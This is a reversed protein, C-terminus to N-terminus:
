DGGESTTDSDRLIRQFDEGTFCEYRRGISCGFMPKRGTKLYEQFAFTIASIAM